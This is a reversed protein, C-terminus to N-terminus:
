KRTAQRRAEVAACFDRSNKKFFDSLEPTYGIVAWPTKNSAFLLAKEVNKESITIQATDGYFIFIVHYSKGGPIFGYVRRQTIKKYAWVLDEFRFINFRFLSKEVLYKETFTFRGHKFAAHLQLEREIDTSVSQPGGWKQIRQMVPHTMPDQLWLLAQGGEHRIVYSYIALFVVGGLIM